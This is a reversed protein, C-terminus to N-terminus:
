REGRDPKGLATQPTPDYVRRGRVVTGLESLADALNDDVRGFAAIALSFSPNRNEGLFPIRGPGVFCVATAAFVHTQFWQRDTDAPIVVLVVDVEPRNAENLAKRLWQQKANGDGNTSWPPNVFVAGEWAKSLGDDSKTYRTPAIPTPEAGSAPDVDFGGVAKSLPRWIEPPTAYDNDSEDQEHGNLLTM